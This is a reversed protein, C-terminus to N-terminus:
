VLPPIAATLEEEDKVGDEEGEGSGANVGGGRRERHESQYLRWERRYWLPSKSPPQLSERSGAPLPLSCSAKNTRREQLNQQRNRFRSHLM